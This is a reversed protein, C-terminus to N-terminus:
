RLFERYRRQSFELGRRLHRRMRDKLGTEWNREVYAGGYIVVAIERYSAQAVWGDLTILADRLKQATPTWRPLAPPQKM